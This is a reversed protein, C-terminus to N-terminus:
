QSFGANDAIPKHRLELPIVDKPQFSMGTHAYCALANHYSASGTKKSRMQAFLQQRLPVINEAYVIVERSPPVIDNM